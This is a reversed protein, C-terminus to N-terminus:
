GALGRNTAFLEYQVVKIKRNRWKRMIINKEKDIRVRLRKRRPM